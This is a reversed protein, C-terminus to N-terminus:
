KSVSEFKFSSIKNKIHSVDECIQSKVAERSVGHMYVHVKQGNLYYSFHYEKM